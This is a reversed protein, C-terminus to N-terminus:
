FLTGAVFFAAGLIAAAGIGNKNGAGHSPASTTATQTATMSPTPASAVGSSSPTPNVISSVNITIPSGSQMCAAQYASIAQSLQEEAAPTDIVAGLSSNVICSLCTTLSTTFTANCFASQYLVLLQAGDSSPTVYMTAM